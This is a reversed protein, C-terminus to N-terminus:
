AAVRNKNINKHKDISYHYQINKDKEPHIKKSNPVIMKKKRNENFAKFTNEEPWYIEYIIAAAYAALVVFVLFMITKM